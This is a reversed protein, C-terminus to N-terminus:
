TLSQYLEDFGIRDTTQPHVYLLSKAIIILMEIINLESYTILSNSIDSSVSHAKSLTYISSNLIPSFETQKQLQLVIKKKSLYDSQSM